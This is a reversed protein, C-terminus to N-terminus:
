SELNYLAACYLCMDVVGEPNSQQATPSGRRLKVTDTLLQGQAREEATLNTGSMRNVRFRSTMASPRIFHNASCKLPRRREYAGSPSKRASFCPVQRNICAGNISAGM